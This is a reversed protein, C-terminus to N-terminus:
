SHIPITSTAEDVSMERVETLGSTNEGSEQFFSQLVPLASDFQYNGVNWRPLSTHARHYTSHMFLYEVMSATRRALKRKWRLEGYYRQRRKTSDKAIGIKVLSPFSSVEYVYIEYGALSRGRLPFQWDGDLILTDGDAVLRWDEPPTVVM